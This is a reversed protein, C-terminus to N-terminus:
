RALTKNSSRLALTSILNIITGILFVMLFMIVGQFAPSQMYEPMTAMHVQAEQLEAETFWKQQWARFDDGEIVFFLMGYIAMLLSSILTIGFGIKIGENFSVIGSNLKDRFYKIGLPITLLSVTISLYGISESLNPGYAPAIFFWNLLGLVISISAGIIGYRLVFKKM